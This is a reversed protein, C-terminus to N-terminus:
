EHKLSEVEFDTVPFIFLSGPGRRRLIGAVREGIVQPLIHGAESLIEAERLMRFLNQRLKLKSSIKL